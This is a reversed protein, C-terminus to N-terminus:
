KHLLLVVLVETVFLLGFQGIVLWGDWDSLWNVGIGVWLMWECMRLLLEHLRLKDLLWRLVDGYLLDLWEGSLSEWNRRGM